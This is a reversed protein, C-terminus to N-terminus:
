SGGSRNYAPRMGPLVRIAVGPIRTTANRRTPKQGKLPGNKCPKRVLQRRRRGIRWLPAFCRFASCGVLAAFACLDIRPPMSFVASEKLLRNAQAGGWAARQTAHWPTREWGTGRRARRRTSWAPRTSRRGGAASTTSSAPPRSRTMAMTCSGATTRVMRVWTPRASEVSAGPGAGGAGAAIPYGGREAGSGRPTGRAPGRWRV